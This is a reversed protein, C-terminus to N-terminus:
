VCRSMLAHPYIQELSLIPVISSTWLGPTRLHLQVPLLHPHSPCYPHEGSRQFGQGVRLRRAKWVVGEEVRESSVSGTRRTMRTRTQRRDVRIRCGMLTTIRRPIWSTTSMPIAMGKQRTRDRSNSAKRFGRGWLTLASPHPSPPRPVSTM